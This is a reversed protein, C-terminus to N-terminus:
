ATQLEHAPQVYGQGPVQYHMGSHIVQGASLLLDVGVMPPLVFNAVLAAIPLDATLSLLEVGVVIGAADIDVNVDPNLEVTEAVPENTMEVYAVDLVTDVSVNIM